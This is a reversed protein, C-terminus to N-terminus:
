KIRIVAPLLLLTPERRMLMMGAIVSRSSRWAVPGMVAKAAAITAAADPAM